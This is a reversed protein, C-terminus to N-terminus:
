DAKVLFVALSGKQCSVTVVNEVFENSVGLPFDPTLASNELEYFAGKVCVGEAPGELPFLSFYGWDEKELVITQGALLYRIETREDALVAEVGRKALYLGTSISAMTHDMRKGGLAGLLTAHTFGKDAAWRAAYQTDTDDKVHPLVIADEAETPMPASDYDGLLLDAKLKLTELNKYGADCAIVFDQPGCYDKMGATVPCASLILCRKADM